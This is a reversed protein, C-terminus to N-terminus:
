SGPVTKRELPVTAPGHLVTGDHGFRSGHCACDWTKEAPNWGLVCGMHTCVASVTHLRGSDDRYAAIKGEGAKLIAADGPKLDSPPLDDIDEGEVFKGTLWLKAVQVNEKLFEGSILPKLRTADYLELWPNSRGLIMDSILMASVTSTTLGWAKFGTAVYIHDTRDSAKGIFPVGDAPTYDENFWRYTVDQIPFHARTIAELDRYGQETDAHHGPKFSPGQVVLWPGGDGPHVRVSYTPQESTIFMGDPAADAPIRAALGQHAQPYAKAWFEGPFIFPIHSAVVVERAKVTGNKTAVTCPEGDEVDDVWTNEYVASGDGPIREALPVLYKVSHFQAQNDFRVAGLAPMPLPVERTFSAPLGLRRAAEAEQQLREVESEQQTFVYNAKREFDCDLGYDRVFAAMRELAEQNSQAYLRAKDEGFGRILQDYVVGHQSTVKGTTGGTVGRSVKEAELVVVRRGAQKLLLATTIGVLGGGVVVVDAEIDGTLTPFRTEPGTANWLPVHSGYQTPM